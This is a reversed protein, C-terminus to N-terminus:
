RLLFYGQHTGMNHAARLVKRRGRQTDHGRGEQRRRRKKRRRKWGLFWHVQTERWCYCMVVAKNVRCSNAVTVFVPWSPPSLSPTPPRLCRRLGGVGSRGVEQGPNSLCHCRIGKGGRDQLLYRYVKCYVEGERWGGSM